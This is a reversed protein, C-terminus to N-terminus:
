FPKFKREIKSQLIHHTSGPLLTLPMIQGWPQFKNPQSCWKFGLKWVIRVIRHASISTPRWILVLTTEQQMKATVKIRVMPSQHGALYAFPILGFIINASCNHWTENSM